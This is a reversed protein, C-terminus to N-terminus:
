CHSLAHREHTPQTDLNIMMARTEGTSMMQEFMTTKPQVNLLAHSKTQGREKKWGIVELEKELGKGHKESAICFIIIAEKIAEDIESEESVQTSIGFVPMEVNISNDECFQNWTPMLVKISTLKGEVRQIDITASISKM